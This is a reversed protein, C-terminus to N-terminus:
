QNRDVFEEYFDETLKISTFKFFKPEGVYKTKVHAEMSNFDIKLLLAPYDTDGDSLATYLNKLQEESYVKVGSVKFENRLENIENDSLETKVVIHLKSPDKSAYLIKNSLRTPIHVADGLFLPNNIVILENLNLKLVKAETFYESYKTRRLMRREERSRTRRSQPANLCVTKVGIKGYKSFYNCYEGGIVFVAEPKVRQILKAKYNLAQEENIWGDTDIVIPKRGCKAAYDILKVIAWAIEDVHHQPKVDGIFIMREASYERMWIAQKDPFSLTIFGPPGIDSQGVDGDILAPKLGRELASNVIMVSLTSKGYDVGGIVVTVGNGSITGVTEEVKAVWNLYPENEDVQQISGEPGLNVNLESEEISRVVYSRVRHVVFRDGARFRKMFVDVLGEKVEVVAPGFLKMLEDKYLKVTPM